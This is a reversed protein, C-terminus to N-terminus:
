DDTTLDVGGSSRVDTAVVLGESDGDGDSQVHLSGEGKGVRNM